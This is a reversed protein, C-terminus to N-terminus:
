RDRRVLRITVRSVARAAFHFWLRTFPKPREYMLVKGAQSWRRSAVLRRRQTARLKRPRSNEAGGTLKM